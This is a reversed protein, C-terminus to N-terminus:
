VISLIPLRRCIEAFYRHNQDITLDKRVREAVLYDPNAPRDKAILLDGDYEPTTPLYYLYYDGFEDRIQKAFWQQLEAKLVEHVDAINKM